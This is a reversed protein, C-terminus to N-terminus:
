YEYFLMGKSDKGPWDIRFDKTAPKYIWGFNGTAEAPMATNDPIMKIYNNENFINKPISPIYKGDRVLQAWFDNFHVGQALNNNVYGPPISDHQTAYFEITNRISHLTDKIAVEKAQIIYNQVLPVVFAVLIGLIATVIVMETITFAKKM